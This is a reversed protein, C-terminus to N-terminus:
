VLSEVEKFLFYCKFTTCEPTCESAIFGGHLDMIKKCIALGIGGKQKGKENRRYFMTFIKEGEKPDFGMGNDTVSIMYYTLDTHAASHDIQSGTKLAHKIHIVPNAEEKRFKLANSILHYFLLSILPPYGSIVPLDDTNVSANETKIKDALSNIVLILMENLDVPVMQEESNVKSFAIIDDTLLKMKQVAAQARRINAKGADSLNKADNSVIFEMSNYLQKLTENYDNAAIANFTQLESGIAQLKRNKTFLVKNLQMIKEEAQKATSVDQLCVIICNNFKRCTLQYWKKRDNEDFRIITNLMNGTEVVDTFQKFLETGNKLSSLLLSRADPNNTRDLFFEKVTTDEFGTIKNYSDRVAEIVLVDDSITEFVAKLLDSNLRLNM